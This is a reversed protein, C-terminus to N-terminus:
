DSDMAVPCVATHAEVPVVSETPSLLSGYCPLWVMASEMAHLARGTDRGVAGTVSGPPVDQGATNAM